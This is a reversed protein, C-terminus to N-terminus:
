YISPPPSHSRSSRSYRREERESDHAAVIAERIKEKVGLKQVRWWKSDDADVKDSAYYMVALMEVFEDPYASNGSTFESSLKSRQDEETSGGDMNSCEWSDQLQIYDLCQAVVGSLEFMLFPHSRSVKITYHAMADISSGRETNAADVKTSLSKRTLYILIHFLSRWQNTFRMATRRTVLFTGLCLLRLVFDPEVPMSKLQSLGEALNKIGESPVSRLDLSSYDHDRGRLVFASTELRRVVVLLPMIHEQALLCKIVEDRLGSPERYAENMLKSIKNFVDRPLIGPQSFNREREMWAERKIDVPRYDEQRTLVFRPRLIVISTYRSWANVADYFFDMALEVEVNLLILMDYTKALLSLYNEQPNLWHGTAWSKVLEKALSDRFSSHKLMTNLFMIGPHSLKLPFRSKSFLISCATVCPHRVDQLIVQPDQTVMFHTLIDIIANYGRQSLSRLDFPVPKGFEIDKRSLRHGLVRLVFNVLDEFPLNHIRQLSDFIVTGLLEDNSQIADVEELIALDAAESALVAQEDHQEIYEVAPDPKDLHGLHASRLRSPPKRYVRPSPKRHPRSSPKRRPQSLPERHIRKSLQLYLRALRFHIYKLLQKLLTTKYPCRPFFVPLITVMVFCFAWGSVLPLTTRGISLHVSETFYCLGIFFLALSLQQLLPLIAAIEVVKWRELDPYRFHRIRLRAQPSPNTVALYERLWQKILIGFSATILSFILSAFWLVNVRIDTPSPQFPQDVFGAVPMSLLPQYTSNVMGIPTKFSSMQLSMQQMMVYM